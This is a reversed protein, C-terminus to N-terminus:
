GAKYLTADLRGARLEGEPTFHKRVEVFLSTFAFDPVMFVLESPKNKQIQTVKVETGATADILFIGEDANAADFALRSGRLTGINGSTVATNTTGTGLDFYELVLPKPLVTDLKGVAANDRIFKRVRSGPTAGIDVKHRSPDYHDTVSNFKGKIKPYLDFLGGFNVRAGELLLNQVASVSGELVAIIDTRTVTSGQEVIRDAIVELDASSTLLVRAAYLSTEETLNNKYLAYDITM